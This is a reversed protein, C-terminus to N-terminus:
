ERVPCDVGLPSGDYTKDGCDNIEHWVYGRGDQTIAVVRDIGYEINRQGTFALARGAALDDGIAAADFCDFWTPAVRPEAGPYIAYTDRLQDLTSPTTFCARYRIPSSEADIARFDEYLITEPLNSVKGTLRVDDTGTATVDYYYAYVQTYYLLAGACLATVVIFAVM